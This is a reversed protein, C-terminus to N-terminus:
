ERGEEGSTREKILSVARGTCRKRRYKGAPEEEKEEENGENMSNKGVFTNTHTNTTAMKGAM